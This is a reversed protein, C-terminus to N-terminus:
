LVMSHVLISPFELISSQAEAIESQLHVVLCVSLRVSLCVAVSFIVMGLKALGIEILFVVM